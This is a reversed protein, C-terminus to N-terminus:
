LVYVTWEWSKTGLDLVWQGRVQQVPAKNLCWMDIARRALETTLPDTAPPRAIVVARGRFNQLKALVKSLLAHPPFLYIEKWRNWDQALADTETARPHPFPSVFVRLKANFPTAFLDVQM